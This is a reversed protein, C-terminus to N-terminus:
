QVLPNMKEVGCDKSRDIAIALPEVDIHAVLKELFYPAVMGNHICATKTRKCAYQKAIKSDPFASKLVPSLQDAFALPNHGQALLISM